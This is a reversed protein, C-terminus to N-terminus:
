RGGLACGGVAAEGILPRTQKDGRAQLEASSSGWIGGVGGLFLVATVCVPRAAMVRRGAAGREYLRAAGGLAERRAKVVGARSAGEGGCRAAQWTSPM